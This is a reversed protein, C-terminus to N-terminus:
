TTKCPHLLMCVTIRVEHEASRWHTTNHACDWAELLLAHQGLTMKPLLRELHEERLSSFVTRSVIGQEVLTTKSEESVGATELYSGLTNGLATM